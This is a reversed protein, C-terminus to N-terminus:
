GAQARRRGPPSGPCAPPVAGLRPSAPRARHRPGGARPGPQPAPADLLRPTGARQQLLSFTTVGLGAVWSKEKRGLEGVRKTLHLNYIHLQRTSFRFHVQAATIGALFSFCVPFVQRQKKRGEIKGLDGGPCEGHLWVCVPQVFSPESNLM